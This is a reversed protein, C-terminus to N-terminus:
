REETEFRGKMCEVMKILTQFKKDLHYLFIEKTKERTLTSVGIYDGATQLLWIELNKQPNSQYFILNDHYENAKLGISARIELLLEDM